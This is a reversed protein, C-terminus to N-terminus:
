VLEFAVLSLCVAVAIRRRTSNNSSSDQDMPDHLIRDPRGVPVSRMSRGEAYSLHLPNSREDYYNLSQPWQRYRDMEGYSDYYNRTMTSLMQVSVSLKEPGGLGIQSIM